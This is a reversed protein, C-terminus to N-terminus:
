IIMHDNKNGSFHKMHHTYDSSVFGWCLGLTLTCYFVGFVRQAGNWAHTQTLSAPTVHTESAKPTVLRQYPSCLNTGQHVFSGEM